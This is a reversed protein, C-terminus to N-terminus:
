NGSNHVDIFFETGLVTKSNVAQYQRYGSSRTVRAAIVKGGLTHDAEFAAKISTAGASDIWTDLRTQAAQDEPSGSFAQVIMTLKDLGRRNALDFEVVDPGMVQVVRGVPSSKMYAHVTVEAGLASQLVSRMAERIEAITAAM